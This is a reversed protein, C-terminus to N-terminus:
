MCGGGDGGHSEPFTSDTAMGGDPPATADSPGHGAEPLPGADVLTYGPPLSCTCSSFFVGECLAYAADGCGHCDMPPIERATLASCNGLNGTDELAGDVSPTSFCRPADVGSEAVEEAFGGDDSPTADPFNGPNSSGCSLPAYLALGALAAVFLRRTALLEARTTRM